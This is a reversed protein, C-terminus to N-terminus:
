EAAEARFEPHKTAMHRRLDSFSRTCCPCVGNGVRKSMKTLQGRTAIASKREAEALREARAIRDDKYALEQRLREAERRLKDAETNGATFVRTHGNPCHFTREAPTKGELRAKHWNDPVHFEIGCTGCTIAKM